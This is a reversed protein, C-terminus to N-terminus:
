LLHFDIQLRNKTSNPYLIPITYRRDRHLVSPVARLSSTFMGPAIPLGNLYLQIQSIYKLFYIDSGPIKLIVLRTNHFGDTLKGCHDCDENTGNLVLISDNRLLEPDDNRIFQDISLAEEYSVKFVEAVTNIINM